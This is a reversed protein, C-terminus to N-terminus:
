EYDKGLGKNVQMVFEDRMALIEITFYSPIM